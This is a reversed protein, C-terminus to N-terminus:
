VKVDIVIPVNPNDKNTTKYDGVVIVNANIEEFICKSQSSMEFDLGSVLQVALCILVAVLCSSRWSSLEAM